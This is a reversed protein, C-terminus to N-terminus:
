QLITRSESWNRSQNRALNSEAIAHRLIESRCTDDCCSGGQFLSCGYSPVSRESIQEELGRTVCRSDGGCVGRSLTQFAGAFSHRCQAPQRSFSKMTKEPPFPQHPASHLFAAFSTQLLSRSAAFEGRPRRQGAFRSGSKERWRVGVASMERM